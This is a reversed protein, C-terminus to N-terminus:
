TPKAAKAELLGFFRLTTSESWYLGQQGFSVFGVHGGFESYVAALCPNDVELYCEEGLFPDDRASLM